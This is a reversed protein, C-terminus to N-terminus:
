NDLAPASGALLRRSLRMPAQKSLTFNRKIEEEARGAQYAARGVTPGYQGLAEGMLRLAAPRSTMAKAVGRQVGPLYPLSGLGALTATIPEVGLGGTILAAMLARETTGSTPLNNGLVERADMSLDQMLARGRATNGKRMSKDAAKVGANLQAPTFGAIDAGAKTGAERLRAYNAYGRDIANLEREFNPNVRALSKRLSSNIKGLADAAFRDSPLGQRMIDATKTLEEMVVKLKVGDINGDAIRSIVNNEVLKDLLKAADATMNLKASAAASSIEDLLTKDPSFKIKPLLADYANSLAISVDSIGTAGIPFGKATKGIPNLARNYAAKNLDRVARQQGGGIISGLIPVSTAADEAKKFGGGLIQGPTPAVGEAILRKVAGRTQPAAIRGVTKAAINVPDM